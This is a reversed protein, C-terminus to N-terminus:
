TLEGAIQHAADHRSRTRKRTGVRWEPQANREHMGLVGWHGTKGLDERNLDKGDDIIEVEIVADDLRRARLITSHAEAHKVINSLAEQVVRFLSIGVHNPM